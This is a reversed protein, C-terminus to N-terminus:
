IYSTFCGYIMWLDGNFGPLDDDEEILPGHEMAVHLLWPLFWPKQLIDWSGIWPLHGRILSDIIGVSESTYGIPYLLLEIHFVRWKYILKRPFGHM